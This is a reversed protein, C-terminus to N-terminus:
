LNSALGWVVRDYFNPLSHVSFVMSFHRASVACGDSDCVIAKGGNNWLIGAATALYSWKAM